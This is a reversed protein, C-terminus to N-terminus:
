HYGFFGLIVRTVLATLSAGLIAFVVMQKSELSRVREFFGPLKDDGMLAEKITCVDNRIGKVIETLEYFGIERDEM